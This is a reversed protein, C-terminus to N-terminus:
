TFNGQYGLTLKSAHHVSTESGNVYHHILGKDIASFYKRPQLPFPVTDVVALIATRLGESMSFIPLKLYSLYFERFVQSLKCNSCVLTDLLM